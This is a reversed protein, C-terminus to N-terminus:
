VRLTGGKKPTEQPMVLGPAMMAGVAGTM